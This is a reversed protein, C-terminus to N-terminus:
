RFLMDEWDKSETKRCTIFYYKGPFSNKLDVPDVKVKIIESKGDLTTEISYNAFSTTSNTIASFSFDDSSLKAFTQDWNKGELKKIDSEGALIAADYNAKVVTGSENVLVLARGSLTKFILDIDVQFNEM